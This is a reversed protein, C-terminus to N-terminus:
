VKSGDRKQRESGGKILTSLDGVPVQLPFDLSALMIAFFIYWGALSTVFTFAGGAVVLRGARTAAAVNTANEYVLALNFYAGALCGFACVLTLFIVFFVINTRLSCILFVFCVMGMFILFFAFSANFAPVQLGAPNGPNGMYTAAVTPDTVYAGYANFWPVLTAGFTAWFAGTSTNIIKTSQVQNSPSSLHPTGFTGFVVFPFTNGIIWEGISGIIMLLGGFFFFVGTSAAGNGGAGRWGMLDCSLPTLSLIFGVLAIPTPNGFTKRLEGKVRSEPSLYLKEFLEPSINVSGATRLRTLPDGNANDYDSSNGNIGHNSFDKELRNDDPHVNSPHANAM